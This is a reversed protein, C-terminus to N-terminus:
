LYRAGPAFLLRQALHSHRVLSRVFPQAPLADADRRRKAEGARQDRDAGATGTEQIGEAPDAPGRALTRGELIGKKVDGTAALGPVSGHIGPSPVLTTSGVTCRRGSAAWSPIMMLRASM